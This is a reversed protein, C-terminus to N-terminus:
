LADNRGEVMLSHFVKGTLTLFAGVKVANLYLILLFILLDIAEILGLFYFLVFIVRGDEDIM